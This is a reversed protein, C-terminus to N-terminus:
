PGKDPIVDVSPKYWTCVISPVDGPIVAEDPGSIRYRIAKGELSFATDTTRNKAIEVRNGDITVEVLRDSNGRVVVDIITHLVDDYRIFVESTGDLYFGATLRTKIAM